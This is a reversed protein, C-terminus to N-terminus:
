GRPVPPLLHPPIAPRLGEGARHRNIAAVLALPDDAPPPGDPLLRFFM